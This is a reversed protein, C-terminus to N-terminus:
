DYGPEVPHQRELGTPMAIWVEGCGCRFATGLAINLSWHHGNRGAFSELNLRSGCLCTLVIPYYRVVTAGVEVTPAKPGRGYNVCFAKAALDTV